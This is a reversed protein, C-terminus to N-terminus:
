TRRLRIAIEGALRKAASLMAGGGQTVSVNARKKYPKFAFHIPVYKVSGKYRKELQRGLFESNEKLYSKQGDYFSSFAQVVTVKKRTYPGKADKDLWKWIKAINAVPAIRRLEVEVLV